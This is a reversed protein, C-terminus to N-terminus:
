LMPEGRSAGESGQGRANAAETTPRETPFTCTRFDYVTIGRRRLAEIIARVRSTKGGGCSGGYIAIM